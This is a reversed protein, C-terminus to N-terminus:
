SSYDFPSVSVGEKENKMVDGEDHWVLTLDSLQKTKKEWAPFFTYRQGM